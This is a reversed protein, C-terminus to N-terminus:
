TTGNEAEKIPQLDKKIYKQIRRLLFKKVSRYEREWEYETPMEYYFRIIQWLVRKFEKGHPRRPSYLRRTIHHATEHVIVSIPTMTSQSTVTLVQDHYRYRGARGQTVRVTPPPVNFHKCIKTVESLVQIQLTAKTDKNAYYTNYLQDISKRWDQM